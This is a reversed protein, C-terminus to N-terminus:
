GRATIRTYYRTFRSVRVPLAREVAALARDTDDIPFAGSVRLRAVAEDCRLHGARYRDLQGVFDALRMGDVVLLGRTWADPEGFIAGGHRAATAELVGQEGVNLVLVAGGDAPLLEVAHRLVAVRTLDDQRNVTFRTGMPRVTGHRTTVRLPPLGPAAYETDVLVEGAHVTIHRGSADIAVDVASASDLWLLTGDTLLVERREGTGMRYDALMQEVPLVRWAMVSGAGVLAATGLGSRLVARRRMFHHEARNLTDAALRAPASGLTGRLREVQRWVREHEPDAALWRGHAAIDAPSVDDACLRAYWQAAAAVPKNAM